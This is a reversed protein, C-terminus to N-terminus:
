SGSGAEDLLKGIGTQSFAPTLREVPKVEPLDKGLSMQLGIKLINKAANIDRDHFTHCCDCEWERDCLKLNENIADCVSCRKSSPEFRGIKQVGRGRWEAKYTCMHLFAGLSQDAFSKSLHRNRILGKVLLDEIYTVQNEIVVKLSEQHLFNKRQNAIKEHLKAVELRAKNYNLSGKKKRSLRKYAAALKKELKRLFKPPDIKKGKDTVLFSKLGLDIAGHDYTAKKTPVIGEVECNFSAYYKGSPDRSVTLQKLTGSVERHVKIKIGSDLKPIFLYWNGRKSKKLFFNQPVKFAQRGSKKRYRPHGGQGNFFRKYAKELDSLAEQLSQSNVSKLFSYEEMRKLRPIERKLRFFTAKVGFREYAVQRLYLFRNYIFRCCGFSNEFFFKQNETPYIQFKYGVLRRVSQM